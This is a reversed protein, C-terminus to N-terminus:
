TSEEVAGEFIYGAANIVHTIKGYVAVAKDIVAQITAEDSTVDLDMVEAGAEKLDTLKSSNRATAIVKHGRKLAELAISKGFGSSAATIFWVPTKMIDAMPHLRNQPAQFHTLSQQLHTPQCHELPHFSNNFICKFQHHAKLDSSIV